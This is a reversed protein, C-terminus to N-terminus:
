RPTRARLAALEAALENRERTMAELELTLEAANGPAPRAPRARRLRESLEQHARTKALLEAEVEEVKNRWSAAERREAALTEHLEVLESADPRGAATAAELEKELSTRTAAAAELSAEAHACRSRLAALAETAEGLQASLARVEESRAKLKQEAAAGTNTARALREHLQSLETELESTRREVQETRARATALDELASALQEAVRVQEKRAADLSGAQRNALTTLTDREQDLAAIRLRAADLEPILQGLHTRVGAAADEATRLGARLAETELAAEVRHSREQGLESRMDELEREIRERAGIASAERTRLTELSTEAVELRGRTEELRSEVALKARLSAELEQTRGRLDAQTRGHVFRESDLEEGRRRARSEADFLRQRFFFIELIWEALVGALFAALMWLIPHNSISLSM